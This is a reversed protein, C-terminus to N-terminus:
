FNFNYEDTLTSDGVVDFANPIIETDEEIGLKKSLRYVQEIKKEKTDCNYLRNIQAIDGESFMKRQGFRLSPFRISVLTEEGNKSFASNRYHMISAFNYPVSLDTIDNFEYKQFNHLYKPDVNNMIVNVHNDRDPRSQEHVVGLAHMMEHLETGLRYCGPGLTINQQGGIRGVSSSCVHRKSRFLVFDKQNTRRVFRICTFKHYERMARGISSLIINPLSSDLEYPVIGGPWKHDAEVLASRKSYKNLVARRLLPSMVIDGEFIELIFWCVYKLM